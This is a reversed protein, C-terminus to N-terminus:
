EKFSLYENFWNKTGNYVKILLKKGTNDFLKLRNQYNAAIVFMIAIITITSPIFLRVFSLVDFILLIILLVNISQKIRLSYKFRCVFVLIVIILLTILSLEYFINGAFYIISLIGDQSFESAFYSINLVVYQLMSIVQPFITFIIYAYSLLTLNRIRAQNENFKSQIKSNQTFKIFANSFLYIFISSRVLGFLIYLITRQKVINLILPLAVLTILLFIFLKRGYIIKSNISKTCLILLILDILMTIFNRIYPLIYLFVGEREVVYELMQNKDLYVLNSIFFGISIFFSIISFLLVVRLLRRIVDLVKESDESPNRLEGIVDKFFKKM